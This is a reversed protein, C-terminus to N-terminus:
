ATNALQRLLPRNRQQPGLSIDSPTRRRPRPLRDPHLRIRPISRKVPPGMPRRRHRAVLRQRWAYSRYLRVEM